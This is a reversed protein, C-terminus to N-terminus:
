CAINITLVNPVNQVDSRIYKNSTGNFQTINATTGSFTTGYITAFAAGSSGFDRTNNGDPSIVGAINVTGNAMVTNTDVYNKNVVGNAVTPAGAVILRSTAGDITLATTSVGGDNVKVVIDGNLTANTQTVDSGSVSITYDSDGGISIGSDNLVGLTGSTTDNANSRLFATSDL